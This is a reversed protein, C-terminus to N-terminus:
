VHARGIQKPNEPSWLQFDGMPIEVSNGECVAAAKLKGDDLVVIEVPYEASKYFSLKVVGADIDPVITVDKLHVAPMSELWVSQWIGSQPTYWIGGRKTAQKARTHYSTDTPDTVSLKIENEGPRIARSVDLSFPMYGGRHEGVIRGNLTIRCEFDVADFHLVTYSKLFDEPVNFTRRYYLVDNPTVRTGEPLGSLLSEPSFPVLIKGQYNGNFSESKRLIAYDWRGNLCIYSDRAFQPRPYESLPTESVEFPTRLRVTEM